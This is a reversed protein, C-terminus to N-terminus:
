RGTAAWVRVPSPQSFGCASCVCEDQMSMRHHGFRADSGQRGRSTHSCTVSKRSNKIPGKYLHKIHRRDDRRVRTSDSVVGVIVAFNCLSTRSLARSAYFRWVCQIRASYACPRSSTIRWNGRVAHSRLTRQAVLICASISARACVKRAGHKINFTPDFRLM